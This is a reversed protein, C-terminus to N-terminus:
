RHVSAKSLPAAVRDWVTVGQGSEEVLVPYAQSNIHATLAGDPARTVRVHAPHVHAIRAVHDKVAVTVLPHSDSPDLDFLKVSTGPMWDLAALDAKALRSGGDVAETIFVGPVFTREGLYPRREEPALRGIFGIPFCALLLGMELWVGAETWATIAISALRNGATLSVPKIQIMVDGSRPTPGYLSLRDVRSPYGATRGGLEPFWREMGDGPYLHLLADLLVRNLLGQPALPTSAEAIGEAGTPGSSWSKILHYAPGHFMRGANYPDPMSALDPLSRAPVPPAAPYVDQVTVVGQASPSFPQAEDTRTLITVDRAGDERRKVSWDMELWPDVIHWRNLAMGTVATVVGGGADARAAAALYDLVVMMALSPVDNYVPCHDTIWAGQDRHLRFPM